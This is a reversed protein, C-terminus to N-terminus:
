TRSEGRGRRKGGDEVDGLERAEANKMRGGHEGGKDDERGQGSRSQAAVRGVVEGCAKVDTLDLGSLQTPRAGGRSIPM